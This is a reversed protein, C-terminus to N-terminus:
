SSSIAASMSAGTRSTGASRASSAIPPYM